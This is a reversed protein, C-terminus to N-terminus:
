NNGGTLYVAIGFCENANYKMKGTSEWGSSQNLGEDIVNDIARALESPMNAQVCDNYFLVYNGSGNRDIVGDGDLDFGIGSGFGVFSINDFISVAIKSKDLRNFPYDSNRIPMKLYPGNWGTYNNTANYMTLDNTTGTFYGTDAYFSESASQLSNILRAMKTMKANFISKSISPGVILGLIGIIAIVVLIETLTFARSIKKM